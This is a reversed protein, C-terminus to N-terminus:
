SRELVTWMAPAKSTQTSASVQIGGPVFNLRFKWDGLAGVVLWGGAVERWPQDAIWREFVAIGVQAELVARTEAETM